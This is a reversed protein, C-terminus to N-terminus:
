QLECYDSSYFLDGRKVYSPLIFSCFALESIIESIVENFHYLILLLELNVIFQSQLALTLISQWYASCNKLYNQKM